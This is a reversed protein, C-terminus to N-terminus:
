KLHPRHANVYAKVVAQMPAIHGKGHSKFFDIIDQELRLHASQKPAPLVLRARTWDPKLDREDEDSPLGGSSNMM